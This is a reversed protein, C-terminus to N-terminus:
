PLSIPPRAREHRQRLLRSLSPMKMTMPPSPSSAKRLQRASRKSSPSLRRHVTSQGNAHKTVRIRHLMFEGIRLRRLGPRLAPNSLSKASSPRQAGNASTTSTSWDSRRNSSSIKPRRLKPPLARIRIVLRRHSATWVPGISLSLSHPHRLARIPVPFPLQARSFSTTASGTVV